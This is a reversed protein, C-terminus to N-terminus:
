YKVAFVDVGSSLLRENVVTMAWDFQLSLPASTM